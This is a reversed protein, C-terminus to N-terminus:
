DRWFWKTFIVIISYIELRGLVMLFSLFYKSVEPLHLFNSAPGVTGFGPGIGGMCTAVSGFSTAADLGLSMMIATSVAVIFYYMIIFGMVHSIFSQEVTNGNYRVLSITNPSVINKFAQNIKKLSIVHRIVKVGGGTSGSSAGILM